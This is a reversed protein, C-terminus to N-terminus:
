VHFVPLTQGDPMCMEIVNDLVAATRCCRICVSNVGFCWKRVNELTATDLAKPKHCNTCISMQEVPVVTVEMFGAMTSGLYAFIEAHSYVLMQDACSVKGLFLSHPDTILSLGPVFNPLTKRIICGTARTDFVECLKMALAEESVSPKMHILVHRSENHAPLACHFMIRVTIENPPGGVLWRQGIFTSSPPPPHPGILNPSVVSPQARNSAEQRVYRDLEDLSLASPVGSSPHNTSSSPMAPSASDSSM